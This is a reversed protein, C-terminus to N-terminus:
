QGLLGFDRNRGEQRPETPGDGERGRRVELEMPRRDFTKRGYPRQVLLEKKRSHM